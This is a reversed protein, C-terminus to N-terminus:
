ADEPDWWDLTTIAPYYLGLRLRLDGGYLARLVRAYANLQPAYLARESALFLAGPTASGTKYDIIWFYDSGEAQPAAGSRFIRDARLTRLRTGEGPLTGSWSVESQAEPHPALIWQCVPDAACALLLNTVTDTASRLPEGTLASARLLSAARARLAAPDLSQLEPGLRQLLAHVASGVIRRERSGEPRRFEPAETDTITITGSATVNAEIPLPAADLPLRHLPLRPQPDAGAAVDELIGPTPFALIRVPAASEPARAAAAFETQLAPWAVALLSRRNEPRVGASSAVATGLLHLETRARTCAVYLLRKREEDFRIQRQRRVWKFLPDSEDGSAGLPAVLFETEGPQWPSIRELSVILSNDDGSSGRDLGPVLVVEFGLGKAKHITMLQVGCRESVAPDPQAFLRDFEAMFEATAPALGDPSVADLMSFFVQANEYGAADVCAPGGLTRWTREIWSSFSPSESQRWRLDLARNLIASTRALRRQGDESLLGGNREMLAPVSLYRSSRDDSGTLRHLDALRLGCWPARLVSLWAIRDMPHLLARTLALLDLMEQREGLREIEVARFPIQERRLLPVLQALHPRARVLVAVRYEAGTELAHEIRPRHSDLIRLMELAERNQAEKQEDRTPKRDASGIVQPHIHLTPQPPAANSAVARVFPVSAAGPPSAEACVAEFLANIPETLGAHSRFNVSLQVNDCPIHVAALDEPSRIGHDRVEAFLEVEAQRFMYISQMPDGVLFATRGEGPEWASLLQAVLEHQRRSTDQFEDVLLHRVQGGLALARDPSSKLVHLAQLGIETFDLTGTEAFVVKLEAISQRLVTFVNRLTAWQADSYHAPPLERIARLVSLLRPVHELWRLVETMATKRNKEERTNSPFGQRVNVAKRWVKGERLLLECICQWHEVSMSPSFEVVGALAALKENGNALAYQALQLIQESVARQETLLGFAEDLVRRLERHFPVELTIRLNEWDDESMGGSLPFAHAWRDRSALMQALLSQCDSLRNDRLELLYALAADVAPDTGGLRELTRRAALTYLPEPTDTPQLESSLEALLPQGRTIRLCLSDITEISLRQPHDLLNWEHRDANALAALALPMRGMDDPGFGRRGAAAELDSLVRSRMEATAARTFTIALIEEPEDVVALLRLFRRTLLDTKGSGAPAQVIVSRSIDLAAERATADVPTELLDPM